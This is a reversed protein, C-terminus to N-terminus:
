IDIKNFILNTRLTENCLIITDSIHKTKWFFTQRCLCVQTYPVKQSVTAGKEILM